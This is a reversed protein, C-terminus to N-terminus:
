RTPPVCDCPGTVKQNGCCRARSSAPLQRSCGTQVNKRHPAHVRHGIRPPQEGLRQLVELRQRVDRSAPLQVLVGQRFQLREQRLRQQPAGQRHLPLSTDERRHQEVLRPARDAHELQQGVHLHPVGSRRLTGPFILRSLWRVCTTFISAWDFYLLPADRDPLTPGDSVPSWVSPCGSETRCTRRRHAPAPRPGPPSSRLAPASRCRSVSARPACWGSGDAPVPGPAAGAPAAGAPRRAPPTGLRPVPPFPHMQPQQGGLVGSPWAGDSSSSRRSGASNSCRRAIPVVAVGSPTSPCRVGRGSRGLVPQAVLAEQGAVGVVGAVPHHGVLGQHLGLQVVQAPELQGAGLDPQPGRRVGHQVAAVREEQLDRGSLPVRRTRSTSLATRPAPLLVCVWTSGSTCPMPRADSDVAPLRGSRTARVPRGVADATREPQRHAVARPREAAGGVM